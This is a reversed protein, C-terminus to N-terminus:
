GGRRPGLCCRCYEQVPRPAPSRVSRVLGRVRPWVAAGCLLGWAARVLRRVRGCPWSPIPRKAWGFIFIPQLTRPKTVAMRRVPISAIERCFFNDDRGSRLATSPGATERGTRVCVSKAGPSKKKALYIYGEPYQEAADVLRAKVPNQVIYERDGPPVKSRRSNLSGRKDAM